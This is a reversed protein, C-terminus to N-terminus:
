RFKGLLNSLKTVEGCLRDYKALLRDLSDAGKAETLLPEVEDLGVALQDVLEAAGEEPPRGFSHGDSPRFWWGALRAEELAAAAQPRGHRPWAGAM